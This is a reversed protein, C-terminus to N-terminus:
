TDRPFTVAFFAWQHAFGSVAVNSRGPNARIPAGHGASNPSEGFAQWNM